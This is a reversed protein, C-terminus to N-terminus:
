NHTSNLNTFAISPNMFISKHNRCSPRKYWFAVAALVGDAYLVLCIHLGVVNHTIRSFELATAFCSLFSGGDRKKLIFNRATTIGDTKDYITNRFFSAWDHVYTTIPHVTANPIAEQLMCLLGSPTLVKKKERWQDTIRKFIADIDEHTHGVMMMSLHVEEVLGQLNAWAFFGFVWRNKNDAANDM